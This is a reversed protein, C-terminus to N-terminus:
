LLQLLAMCKIRTLTICQSTLKKKTKKKKKKETKQPKKTQKQRACTIEVIESKAARLHNLFKSISHTNRIQYDENITSCKILILYHM